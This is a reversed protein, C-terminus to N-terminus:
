DKTTGQYENHILELVDPLVDMFNFKGSIHPTICISDSEWFPHEQPLPEIGFVDLVARRIHKKEILALLDAESVQSGRGVNIFMSNKPLLSLTDKNLIHQTEPTDPLANILIDSTELLSTLSVTVDVLPHAKKRQYGVVHFGLTVLAKAIASGFIGLGLIGITPRENVHLSSANWSKSKQEALWHASQIIDDLIFYSVYRAMRIPAFPHIARKVQIGPFGAVFDHYGANLSFISRPAPCSLHQSQFRDAVIWVDYQKEFPAQAFEASWELSRNQSFAAIQSLLLARREQPFHYSFILGIKLM